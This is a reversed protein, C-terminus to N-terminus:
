TFQDSSEQGLNSQWYREQSTGQRNGKLGRKCWCHHWVQLRGLHELDPRLCLRSPHHSMKHTGPCLCPIQEDWSWSNRSISSQKKHAHDFSGLGEWRRKLRWRHHWKPEMWLRKKWLLLCDQTQRHPKWEPERRWERQLFKRQGNWYRSRYTIPMFRVWIMM